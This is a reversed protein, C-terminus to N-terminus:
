LKGISLKVPAFQGAVTAVQVYGIFYDGAVAAVGKGSANCTVPLGEAVVGAFEVEAVGQCMVDLREGIAAEATLGSYESPKYAVGLMPAAASVAKDVKHDGAILKVIEGHSIGAVGGNTFNLIQGKKTEAYM